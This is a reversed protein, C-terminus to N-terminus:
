YDFFNHKPIFFIPPANAGIEGGWTIDISSTFLSHILEIVGVDEM